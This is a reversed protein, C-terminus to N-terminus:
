GNAGEPAKITIPADFDYYTHDMFHGPARMEARHVMGGGDIWLRFWVPLDPGGGHFALETTPVGSRATHGLIKVDKYPRFSDWIYTPVSPAAAGREIQWSGDDQQTYRTRGVWITKSTGGQERVTGEFSNPAAFAYTSHVTTGLGSTLDERLRYTTLSDMAALSRQLLHEGSAVPLAPLRFAVQGTSAGGVRVAITEGGQLTARGTWCTDGCEKLAVPPARRVTASVSLAATDGPTSPGVAYITVTNPGPAAPQVTLGVLVPGAHAGLTLAAGAPVPPAESEAGAVDTVEADRGPPLPYAALLAGALIAAAAATAEVRPFVAIRRWAFFSMQAIVIVILSKALLVLGYSSGVLDSLSGVEQVGRVVGTAVTVAFSGLAVPTFRDLLAGTSEVLWGGPPRQLALAMIGGAWLGASVLHMAEISVGWPVAAAHGAWSLAILAAVAFPAAGRPSRLCVLLGAGEVVVRITRAWGPEGTTLYTVVRSVSGTSAALLGEGVVVALGGAFAAAFAPVIPARVWELRPERRALHDLLFLGVLLFLSADELLRGVAVLLDQVAPEDAVSGEAGVGPSVGVGFRFSGSLTHGDVLSVTRWNVDYVGTENTTLDVTLQDDGSVRGSVVSGNPVRVSANSLKNNLPESFTISVQGPASGLTSGADPTSSVFGAHATAAVPTLVILLTALFLPGRLRKPM